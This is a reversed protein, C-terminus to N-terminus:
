VCKKSIEQTQEAVATFSFRGFGYNGVAADLSTPSIDKSKTIITPWSCCIYDLSWKGIHELCHTILLRTTPYRLNSPSLVVFQIGKKHERVLFLKDSSFSHFYSIQLAVRQMKRHLCFSLWCCSSKSLQLQVKMRFLKQKWKPFIHNELFSVGSASHM